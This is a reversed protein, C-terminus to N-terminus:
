EPRIATRCRDYLDFVKGWFAANRALLSVRIRYTKSQKKWVCDYQSDLMEKYHHLCREYNFKFYQRSPFLEKSFRGESFVDFAKQAEVANKFYNSKEESTRKRMGESWSGSTFRRYVAMCDNIYYVNSLCGFYDIMPADDTKNKMFLHAFEPYNEQYRRYEDARFFYCVENFFDGDGILEFFRHSDVIGTPLTSRPLYRAPSENADRVNLDRVRHLCMLCEPNKELADYQKQLKHPDTWYDDGDCLAVYKGTALPLMYEANINIGQSYVNKKHYVPKILEPYKLEYERIIDATADTSCDENIIIEIPFSTKQMLFGEIADKIYKEHNFALCLISVGVKHNM